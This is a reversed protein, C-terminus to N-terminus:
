EEPEDRVQDAKQAFDYLEKIAGQGYRSMNEASFRRISAAVWQGPARQEAQEKAVEAVEEFKHMMQLVAMEKTIDECNHQVFSSMQIRSELENDYWEKFTPRDSDKLAHGWDALFGEMDFKFGRFSLPMNQKYAGRIEPIDKLMLGYNVEIFRLIDRYVRPRYSRPVGQLM